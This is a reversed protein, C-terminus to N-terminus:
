PGAILNLTVLAAHIAADTVAVGTPKATAMQGYFGINGAILLKGRLHLLSTAGVGTIDAALTGAVTTTNAATYFEIATATNH